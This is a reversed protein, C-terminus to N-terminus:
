KPQVEEASLFAINVGLKEMMDKFQKFQEYTGEFKAFGVDGDRSLVEFTYPTPDFREPKDHPPIDGSEPKEDWEVEDHYPFDDLSRYLHLSIVPNGGLEFDVVSHIGVMTSGDEYVALAMECDHKNVYGSRALNDGNTNADVVSLIDITGGRTFNDVLKAAHYKSSCGHSHVQSTHFM